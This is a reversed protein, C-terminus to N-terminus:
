APSVIDSVYSSSEDSNETMATFFMPIDNRTCVSKIKKVLPEIEKKYIETKDFEQNAPKVYENNFM